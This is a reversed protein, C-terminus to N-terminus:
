GAEFRISALTVRNGGRQRADALAAECAARLEDQNHATHPFSAVGMSVTFGVERGELAVIQTACQRRLGEMRSHATALGVGSLLVAFRREGARCAADMARTNSRLLRGIGDHVRALLEPGMPAGGPEQPLPDLEIAVMAFERHERTSLDVERRLQDEFHASNYLGTASDRPSQVLQMETRMQALDLQQQELQLMVNRLQHERRRLSALDRWVSAVLVRDQPGTLRLRLVDFERASGQLELKHEASMAVGATAAGQDALRLAAAAEGFNQAHTRGELAAVPRGLWRAMAANAHLWVGSDADVVILGDQDREVLAAVLPWLSAALADGSPTASM